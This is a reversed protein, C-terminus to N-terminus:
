WPATWEVIGIDTSRFVNNEGTAIGVITGRNVHDAVQQPTMYKQTLYDEEENIHAVSFPSYIIIGLGDIQIMIDKNM